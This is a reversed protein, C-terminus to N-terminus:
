DWGSTGLAAVADFDSGTSFGIDLALLFLLFEVSPVMRALHLCWQLSLNLWPVAIWALLQLPLAM